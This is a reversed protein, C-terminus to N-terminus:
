MGPGRPKFGPNSDEIETNELAKLLEQFEYIVHSDISDYDTLSIIRQGIDYAKQDKDSFELVVNAISNGSESAIYDSNFKELLTHSTELTEHKIVSQLFDIYKLVKTKPSEIDMVNKIFRDQLENLELKNIEKRIFQYLEEWEEETM